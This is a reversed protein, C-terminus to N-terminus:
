FYGGGKPARGGGPIFQGGKYFKKTRPPSTSRAPPSPSRPPSQFRLPSPSRSPSRRYLPSPSRSPSRRYLDLTPCPSPSRSGPPPTRGAYRFSPSLSDRPYPSLARRTPSRGRSANHAQLEALARLEEMARRQEEAALRQAALRQEHERAAAIQRAYEREAALQREHERQAALQREHERQAADRKREYEREAAERKREEEALRVKYEREEQERKRREDELREKYECKAADLALAARAAEDRAGRMEQALKAIDLDGAVLPLLEAQIVDDSPREYEISTGPLRSICSLLDTYDSKQVLAYAGTKSPASAFLEPVVQDRFCKRDDNDAKDNKTGVLVINKWKDAGGVFGKEVLFKVVQAGLKMRADSVPTTVLVGDVQADALHEEFLVFLKQLPVDMDGIGPTDLLVVEQGGIPKGVYETVQKTVGRAAKGASAETSKKEDRLANILTSKGDGVEGVVLLRKAKGTEVKSNGVVPVAHSACRSLCTGHFM